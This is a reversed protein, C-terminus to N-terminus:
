SLPDLQRALRRIVVDISSGLELLHLDAGLYQRIFRMEASKCLGRPIMAEIQSTVIPSGVDMILGRGRVRNNSLAALGTGTMPQCLPMALSRKSVTGAIM